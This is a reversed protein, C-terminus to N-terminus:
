ISSCAKQEAYSCGVLRIANQVIELPIHRRTLKPEPDQFNCLYEIRFTVLTKSSQIEFDQITIRTKGDLEKGKLIGVIKEKIEELKDISQEDKIMFVVLETQIDSRRMNFIAEKILEKNPIYCVTGGKSTFTSYMLDIRLVTFEESKAIIKDGVDFPHEHLLFIFNNFVDKIIDSFLWGSSMLLPVFGALARVPDFGIFPTSIMLTLILAVGELIYDLTSLIKDRDYLTRKLDIRESYASHAMKLLSEGEILHSEADKTYGHEEMYKWIDMWQSNFADKIHDMTISISLRKDKKNEKQSEENEDEQQAHGQPAVGSLIGYVIEECHQKSRIKFDSFHVLFTDTIEIGSFVESQMDTLSQTSLVESYQALRRLISTKLNVEGIRGSFVNNGCYAIAMKLFFKECIFFGFLICLCMSYGAVRGYGVVEMKTISYKELFLNCHIIGFIGLIFFTLLGKVDDIIFLIVKGGHSIKHDFMDCLMALIFVIRNVVLQTPLYTLFMASLFVGIKFNEQAPTINEYLSIPTFIHPAHTKQILLIISPPLLIIFTGVIAYALLALYYYVGKLNTEIYEMINFFSFPTKDELDEVESNKNQVKARDKKIKAEDKVSQFVGTPQAEPESDSKDSDENDKTDRTQSPRALLKKLQKSSKSSNPSGEIGASATNQTPTNIDSNEKNNDGEM